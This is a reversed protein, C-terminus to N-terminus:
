QQPPVEARFGGKDDTLTVEVRVDDQGSVKATCSFKKGKAVKIDDPCSVSEFTAGSNKSLQDKLKSELDASDLTQTCGVLLLLPALLLLRPKM